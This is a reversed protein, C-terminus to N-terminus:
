TTAPRAQRRRVVVPALGLLLFGVLAAIGATPLLERGGGTPASAPLGAAVLRDKLYSTAVYWGGRAREEGLRQGARTYTPIQGPVVTPAAELRAFPYVHQVIRSVRGRPGPVLYTVTYRPGLEGNPQKELMPDTSVGPARPFSGYVAPEFGATEAIGSSLSMGRVDSGELVIPWELGPGAIVAGLGTGHEGGKAHAAPVVALALLLSVLVFPKM